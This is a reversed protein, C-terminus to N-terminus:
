KTYAPGDLWWPHFSQDIPSSRVGASRFQMVFRGLEPQFASITSSRAACALQTFQISSPMTPQSGVGCARSSVDIENDVVNTKPNGHLM